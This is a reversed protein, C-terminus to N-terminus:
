FIVTSLNAYFELGKLESVIANITNKRFGTSKKFNFLNNKPYTPIPMKKKGM